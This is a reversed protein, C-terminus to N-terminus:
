QGGTAMLMILSPDGVTGSINITRFNYTGVALTVPQIIEFNAGANGAVVYFINAFDTDWTITYNGASNRVVGTVNFSDRVIATAGEFHIRAKPINDKVLTNVDPPSAADGTLTLSKATVAGLIGVTVLNFRDNAVDFIIATTNGTIIEGGTLAAGDLFINKDGLSEVNVTSAGTNTNTPVFRFTMNDEYDAPAPNNGVVDLVYADAAGSDDFVFGSLVQHLIAQLYQSSNKDLATDTNGSAVINAAQLLAQQFGFIDDARTLNYPTGDNVGPATENKSSGLPFSATAATINPALEVDPRIAM